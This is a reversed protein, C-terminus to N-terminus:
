GKRNGPSAVNATSRGGGVLPRWLFFVTEKREARETDRPLRSPGRPAGNNTRQGPCRAPFRGANTCRPESLTAARSAPNPQPARRPCKESVGPRPSVHTPPHARGSGAHPSPGESVPRLPGASAPVAASTRPSATGTARPGVGQEAVGKTM